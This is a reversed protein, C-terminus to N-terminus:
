SGGFFAGFYGGKATARPDPFQGPSMKLRWIRRTWGVADLFFALDAQRVGCFWCWVLRGAAALWSRSAM